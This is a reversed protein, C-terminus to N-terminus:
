EKLEVEFVACCISANKDPHGKEAVSVMNKKILIDMKYKYQNKHKKNEDGFSLIARMADYNSIKGCHNIIIQTM